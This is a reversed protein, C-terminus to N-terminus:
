KPVKEWDKLFKALGEDTMPHEFLMQLVNIQMTAVDAGMLAGEIVHLPGRVAAIIIKTEYGYNDYIQRTKAVLEMGEECNNDLRGVFPSVYAAGAKAALLAQGATFNLTANTKVGEKSLVSIAKIGEVICPIKVVINPHIKAIERSEKIIAEAETSVSEVSIPGDVISCIEEVVEKWRRGTNAIHSPNTTVGDLIGWSNAEKIEEVKATDLFLEM